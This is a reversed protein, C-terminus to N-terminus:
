RQLAALTEDLDAAATRPRNYPLRGLLNGMACTNSVASFVLGGGIAASFWRAGPRALDALLGALVLSGAALRVQRDMAWTARAGAPRDLPKGDAAWASTGGTLTAAPVGAAALQRCAAESRAGSACVVALGGRDAAARLAPLARQLQDLPINHAGPIHGGAYEGPSRVDIVTLEELRPHLQDTTLPTTTSM